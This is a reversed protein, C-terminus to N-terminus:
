IIGEEFTKFSIHNANRTPIRPDRPSEFELVFLVWDWERKRGRDREKERERARV